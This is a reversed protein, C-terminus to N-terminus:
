RDKVARTPETERESIWFNIQREPSPQCRMAAEMAARAVRLAARAVAPAVELAVMAEPAVAEAVVGAATSATLSKKQQKTM